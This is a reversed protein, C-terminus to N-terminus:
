SATQPTGIVYVVDEGHVNSVEAEVRYDRGSATFTCTVKAGRVADLDPCSVDQPAVGVKTVETSIRSEIDSAQVTGTCAATTALLLGPLALAALRRTRTM